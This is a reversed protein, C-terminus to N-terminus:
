DKHDIKTSCFAHDLTFPGPIQRACDFNATDMCPALRQRNPVYEARAIKQRVGPAGGNTEFEARWLRTKLTNEFARVAKAAGQRRGAPGTAHRKKKTKHKKAHLAVRVLHPADDGPYKETKLGFHRQGNKVKSAMKLKHGAACCHRQRKESKLDNEIQPGCRLM